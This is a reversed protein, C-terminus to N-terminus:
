ARRARALPSTDYKALLDATSDYIAIAKELDRDTSGGCRLGITAVGAKAAAEVDYATDGIMIVENAPLGLKALAAAIIDPDPKSQEVDSSTVTVDILDAVGAQKILGALDDKEGSTAIALRLGDVRMRELLERVKPFPKLHPLYKEKFIKKRLKAIEEGEDKEASLGSVLPVVKDGGMGILPRVKDFPIDIHHEAFAECWARAHADNSDILTGDVDLM